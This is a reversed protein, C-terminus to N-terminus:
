EATAKQQIHRRQDQAYEKRFKIRYRRDVIGFWFRKAPNREVNKVFMYQPILKAGRTEKTRYAMHNFNLYPINNRIMEQIPLYYFLYFYVGTEKTHDYDLGSAYTSLLADKHLLTMTGIDTKKRRVLYTTAYPRMKEFSVKLSDLELRTLTRPYKKQVNKILRDIIKIKDIPHRCVEVICGAKKFRRLDGKVGNSGNRTLSHLYADFSDFRNELVAAASLFIKNYGRATLRELIGAEHGRLFMFVIESVGEEQALEDLFDIYASLANSLFPQDSLFNSGSSAPSYCLLRKRTKVLTKDIMPRLKGYLYNRYINGVSMPMVAPLAGVLKDSEYALLYYLQYKKRETQEVFQFWEHSFFAGRTVQNWQAADIDYVSRVMKIKVAM